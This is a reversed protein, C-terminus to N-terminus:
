KQTGSLMDFFSDSTLYLKFSREKGTLNPLATLEIKGSVIRLKLWDYTKIFEKGERIQKQEQDDPVIKTGDTDVISIWWGKSNKTTVTESGGERAFSVNKKSLGINDSWDIGNDTGQTGKINDYYNGSQLYLNFARKAGTTNPYVIMKIQNGDRRVTLWECNQEFKLSELQAKRSDESIQVDTSGVKIRYFYWNTGETKIVVTDNKGSFNVGKVSLGIVDKAGADGTSDDDKSCGAIVLLLGALWILHKNM